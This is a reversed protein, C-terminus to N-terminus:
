DEDTEPVYDEIGEDSDEDGLAQEKGPHRPTLKDLRAPPGSTSAGEHGGPQRRSEPPTVDEDSSCCCPPFQIDLKEGLKTFCDILFKKLGKQRKEM